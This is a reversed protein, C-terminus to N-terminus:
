SRLANISNWRDSLSRYEGSGLASFRREPRNSSEEYELGTVRQPWKHSPANPHAAYGFGTGNGKMTSLVNVMTNNNTGTGGFGGGHWPGAFHAAEYTLFHHGLKKFTNFLGGPQTTGSALAVEEGALSGFTDTYWAFEQEAGDTGATPGYGPASAPRDYNDDSYFVNHDTVAIQDEFLNWNTEDPQTVILGLAYASELLMAIPGGFNKKPARIGGNRTQEAITHIHSDYYRDVTFTCDDSNPPPPSDLCPYQTGDRIRLVKTRDIDREREFKPEDMRYKM